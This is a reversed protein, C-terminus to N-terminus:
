VLELARMFITFKSKRCFFFYYVLSFVLTIGKIPDQLHCLVRNQDLSLTVLIGSIAYVASMKLLSCHPITIRMSNPILPPPPSVKEAVFHVFGLISAASFAVFLLGQFFVLYIWIYSCYFFFFFPKSFSFNKHEVQTLTPRPASARSIFLFASLRLPSPCLSPRSPQSFVSNKGDQNIPISSSIRRSILQTHHSRPTQTSKSKWTVEPAVFSRKITMTWWRRFVVRSARWIKKRRKEFM